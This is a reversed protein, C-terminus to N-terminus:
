DEIPRYKEDTEVFGFGDIKERLMVAECAKLKENLESQRYNGTFQLFCVKDSKHQDYPLQCGKQYCYIGAREASEIAETGLRGGFKDSAHKVHGPGIMFPHPKHNVNTISKVTFYPSLIDQLEQEIADM